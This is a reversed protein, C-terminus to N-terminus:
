GEGETNPSDVKYHQCVYLKIQNCQNNFGNIEKQNM